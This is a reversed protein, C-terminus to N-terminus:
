IAEIGGLVVENLPYEAPNMLSEIFDTVASGRKLMYREGVAKFVMKFDSSNSIFRVVDYKKLAAEKKQVIIDLNKNNYNEYELGIRLGGIKCSIDVDQNHNVAIEEAGYQQLLGALQIVSSYHDLTQKGLGPLKVLGEHLMGKPLYAITSGTKGISQVQHKDFGQQLLQSHEGQCWDSFIIRHDDILWQLENFVLIGGDAVAIKDSEYRGKIVADELESPEFRIPIRQGKVLLLGEGPRADEDDGCLVLTDKEEESLQFYKGVDEIANKINAGLIINCFMNTQFEERMGNKTFDSPQHTCLGLFVGHSRGQTLTTLMDSALKPTKLYVGAEDMAIITDRENDTTFRSHLMGTVLVNMADKILEPVNSMDIVIFDKSLDLDTTPRNMYSLIGKGTIQYMKNKIAEATKQQTGLDSNVADLCAIDYLNQMTPWPNDWTEPRDRYIGAVEYVQNLKEDLYSDANETLGPLWVKCFKIFLDKHRDYAKAYAFASNSMAQKDILIQLPNINAGSDGIDVVCAKDTYFRAVAKYDTGRDAKPTVYIIRYNLM